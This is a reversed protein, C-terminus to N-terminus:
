QGLLGVTALRARRENELMRWLESILETQRQSVKGAALLIKEDELHREKLLNVAGKLTAVQASLEAAHKKLAEIEESQAAKM